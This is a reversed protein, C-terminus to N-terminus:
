IAGTLEDAGDPGALGALRELFVTGGIGARVPMRRERRWYDTLANNVVAKLWSRFRGKAPDYSPLERRRCWALIVDHYRAHFGHWAEQRPIDGQLSLLLSTQTVPIVM